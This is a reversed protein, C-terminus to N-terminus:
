KTQGKQAPKSWKRWCHKIMLIWACLCYVAGLGNISSTFDWSAIALAHHASGASTFAHHAQPAGIQDQMWLQSPLAVLQQAGLHTCPRAESIKKQM